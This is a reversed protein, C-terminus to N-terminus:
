RPGNGRRPALLALHAHEGHVQLVLGALQGPQALRHGVAADVQDQARGGAPLFAGHREDGVVLGARLGRELLGVDPVRHARRQGDPHLVLRAHARGGEALEGVGADVTRTESARNKATIQTSSASLARPASPTWTIRGPSKAGYGPPATV